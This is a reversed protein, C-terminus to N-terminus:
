GTRRQTPGRAEAKRGQGGAENRCWCQGYMVPKAAYCFNRRV